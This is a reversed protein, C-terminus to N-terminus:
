RASVRYIAGDALKTLVAIDAIENLEDVEYLYPRNTNDFWVLLATQSGPWSGALSAIPTRPESSNYGKARPSFSVSAGTHIYIVDPSNSYVLLNDSNPLMCERMFKLTDSARWNVHSYDFGSHMLNRGIMAVRITPLVLWAVLIAVILNTMSMSGAFGFKQLSFSRQASVSYQKLLLLITLVVPVFVPSLFRDSIEEVSIISSIAVLMTIYIGVFLMSPGIRGFATKAENVFKGPSWLVGILYGSAAALLLLEYVSDLRQALFDVPFFWNLCHILARSLGNAFSSSSPSGHGLLAGSLLFNRGAWACLPLTSITGFVIFHFLKSRLPSKLLFLFAAAGTVACSLGIHRTLSALGAFTGLLLLRKFSPKILYGELLLLFILTWLIFLPESLAFSSREFLVPSLTVSALGVLVFAPSVLHRRFFIGSLYIILGFILANVFRAGEVPDLGLTLEVLSLVVPYVPPYGILPAANYLTLGNGASLNRAVSIYAVSDPSLGIGHPATTILVLLSGALSMLIALSNLSILKAISTVSFQFSLNAM